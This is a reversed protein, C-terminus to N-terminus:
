REGRAGGGVQILSAGHGFFLSEQIKGGDTLHQVVGLLATTGELVFLLPGKLVSLPGGTLSAVTHRGLGFHEFFESGLEEFNLGEGLM